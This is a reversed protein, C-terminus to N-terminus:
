DVLCMSLIRCQELEWTLRTSLMRPLSLPWVRDRVEAQRTDPSSLSPNVTTVAYPPPHECHLHAPSDLSLYTLPPQYFPHTPPPVTVGLTWACRLLTLRPGPCFCAQNIHSTLWESSSHTLPPSFRTQFFLCPSTWIRSCPWSFDNFLLVYPPM